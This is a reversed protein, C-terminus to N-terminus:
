WSMTSVAYVVLAAIAVVATTVGLAVTRLWSVRREEIHTVEGRARAVRQGTASYGVLSDAGVVVRDLQVTGGPAFTVRASPITREAAAPSPLPTAQWRMCGGTALLLALGLGGLLRSGRM